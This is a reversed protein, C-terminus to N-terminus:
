QPFSIRLSRVVDEQMARNNEPATMAASAGCGEASSSRVVALESNLGTGSGGASIRPWFIVASCTSSPRQNNKSGRRDRLWMMLQLVQWAMPVPPASLTGVEMPWPQCFPGRLEGVTNLATKLAAWNQSPRALSRAACALPGTSALTSIFLVGSA